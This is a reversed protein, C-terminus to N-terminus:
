FQFHTEFIYFFVFSILLIIIIIPLCYRLKNGFLFTRIFFELKNQDLYNYVYPIVCLRVNNENCLDIKIQDIDMRKRLQGRTDHPILNKSVRFHQAGNYEFAIGLEKCYGDLELGRLFPPNTKPFKHGPLLQEFIERCLIETKPINRPYSRPPSIVKYPFSLSWGEINKHGGRVCSGTLVIKTGFELKNFYLSKRSGPIWIEEAKYDNLKVDKLIFSWLRKESKSKTYPNRCIEYLTGEVTVSGSRYCNSSYSLIIDTTRTNFYEEIIFPLIDM